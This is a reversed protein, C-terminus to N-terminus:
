IDVKRAPATLSCLPFNDNFEHDHKELWALSEVRESLVRVKEELDKIRKEHDDNRHKVIDQVEDMINM